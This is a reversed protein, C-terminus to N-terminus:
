SSYSKIKQTTIDHLETNTWQQAQQNREQSVWQGWFHLHYTEAFHKHVEASSCPMVVQFVTSKVLISHLERTWQGKTLIMPEAYIFM